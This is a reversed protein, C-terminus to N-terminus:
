LALFMAGARRRQEPLLLRRLQWGFPYISFSLRNTPMDSICCWVCNMSLCCVPLLTWMLINPQSRGFLAERKNTSGSTIGMRCLSGVLRSTEFPLLGRPTEPWLVHASSVKEHMRWLQARARREATSLHRSYFAAASARDPPRLRTEKTQVNVYYM